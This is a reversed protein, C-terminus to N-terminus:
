VDGGTHTAHISICTAHHFSVISQQDGGTHTAHISIFHQKSNVMFTWDGGTHTAHISIIPHETVQSDFNPRWGYPHRPNFYLPCHCRTHLVQDGGTHTAHISIYTYTNTADASMDGGTHTAHISIKAIRQKRLGSKTAVRIPPTSQFSKFRPYRARKALRWGYPHRPNFDGFMGVMLLIDADGGTHTAHISILYNFRPPKFIGTAM